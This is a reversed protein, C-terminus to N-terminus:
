LSPFDGKWALNRGSTKELRQAERELRAKDEEEMEANRLGEANDPFYSYQFKFKFSSSHLTESLMVQVNKSNVLLQKLPAELAAKTAWLIRTMALVLGQKSDTAGTAYRANQGHAGIEGNPLHWPQLLESYGDCVVQCWKSVLHIIM